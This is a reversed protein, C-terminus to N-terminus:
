PVLYSDRDGAPGQSAASGDGSPAPVSGAPDAGQQRDARTYINDSEVGVDPRRYWRVSGGAVAVNQGERGHNPSNAMVDDAPVVPADNRLGTDPDFYPSGDALIPTSGDGAAFRRGQGYPAMLAYSIQHGDAFDWFEGGGSGPTDTTSLCTFLGHGCLGQRVLLYLCGTPNRGNAAGDYPDIARASGIPANWGAGNLPVYPYRDYEAEYLALAKGIGNLNTACRMRKAIERVRALSPILISVLLAIISIVVLLEILTFGARPGRSGAGARGGYRRAGETRQGQM